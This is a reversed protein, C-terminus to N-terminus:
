PRPTSGRGAQCRRWALRNIDVTTSARLAVALGAFNALSGGSLLIGGAGADFGVLEKMWDVVQHEVTTASPASRWSTVNQNLASALFDGIVGAFSGSSQVYGFM